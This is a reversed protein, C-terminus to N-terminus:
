CAACFQYCRIFLNFCPNCLYSLLFNLHFWFFYANEWNAPPIIRKCFIKYSLTIQIHKCCLSHRDAIYSKLRAATIIPMNMMRFAATPLNEKASGSTTKILLPSFLRLFKEGSIYYNYRSAHLMPM